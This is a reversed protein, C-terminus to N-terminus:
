QLHSKNRSAKRNRVLKRLRTRLLRPQRLFHLLLLPLLLLHRHKREKRLLNLRRDIPCLPRLRSRYTRSNPSSVKNLISYSLRKSHRRCPSYLSCHINRQNNLLQTSCLNLHRKHFKSSNYQRILLSNCLNSISHMNTTYLSSSIICLSCM